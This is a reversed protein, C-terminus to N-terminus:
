PCSAKKGALEYVALLARMLDTATVIGQVKRDDDVVPLCSVRQGYMTKAVEYVGCSPLIYVPARKIIQKLQVALAADNSVTAPLPEGFEGTTKSLYSKPFRLQLFVDRSSLVGVLKGGSEIIPVHRFRGHRMAKVAKALNDERFTIARQTGGVDRYRLYYSIAGSAAIRAQLGPVGGVSLSVRRGERKAREVASRIRKDPTTPGVRRGM